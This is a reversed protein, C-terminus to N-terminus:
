EDEEAPPGFTRSNHDMTQGTVIEIAQRVGNRKGLAYAYDWITGDAKADLIAEQLRNEAEELDDTILKFRKM